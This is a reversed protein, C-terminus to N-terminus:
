KVKKIKKLPTPKGGEVEETINVTLQRNDSVEKEEMFRNHEERDNLKSAEILGWLFILIGIFILLLTM